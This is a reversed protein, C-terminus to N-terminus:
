VVKALLTNIRDSLSKGEPSCRFDYDNVIPLLRQLCYLMEPSAAILKANAECQINVSEPLPGNGRTTGIYTGGVGSKQTDEYIDFRRSVKWPGPTHVLHMSAADVSENKSM